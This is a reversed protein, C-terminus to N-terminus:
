PMVALGYQYGLLNHVAKIQALNLAGAFLLAHSVLGNFKLTADIASGFAFPGATLSRTNTDTGVSAANVYLQESNASGAFVCAVSRWTSAASNNFRANTWTESGGLWPEYRNDAAIAIGLAHSTGMTGVSCIVGKTSIAPSQTILFLTAAPQAGVLEGVNPSTRACNSVSFNYANYQQLMNGALDVAGAVWPAPYNQFAADYAANTPDNFTSGMHSIYFERNADYWLVPNFGAATAIEDWEPLSRIPSVEAMSVAANFLVGDHTDVLPGAFRVNLNGRRSINDRFWFSDLNGNRQAYFSRLYRFEQPTLSPHTLVIQRKFNNAAWLNRTSTTGNEFADAVVSNMPTIKQGAILGLPYLLNSM